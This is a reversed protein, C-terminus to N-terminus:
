VEKNKYFLSLWFSIASMKTKKEDNFLTVNVQLIQKVGNKKAKEIRCQKSTINMDCKSQSQPIQSLGMSSVDIHILSLHIANPGGGKREKFETSPVNEWLHPRKSINECYNKNKQLTFKSCFSKAQSPIQEMQYLLKLEKQLTDSVGDEKKHTLVDEKIESRCSFFLFTLFM